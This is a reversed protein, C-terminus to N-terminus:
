NQKAYTTNDYSFQSYDQAIDFMYNNGGIVVYLTNDIVAYKGTYESNRTVSGNSGFVYTNNGDSYTFGELPTIGTSGNTTFMMLGGSTSYIIQNGSISAYNLVLTSGMVSITVLDDNNSYEYTIDLESGMNAKGSGDSNLIFATIPNNSDAIYKGYTGAIPYSIVPDPIPTPTNVSRYQLMIDGFEVSMPGDIYTSGGYTITVYAEVSAGVALSTYNLAPETQTSINDNSTEYLDGGVGDTSGIRLSVTIDSCAQNKLATTVENGTCEKAIEKGAINKFNVNTLYATYHGTNRIYLKYSVTQGPETFNAQLDKLLLPNSSDIEGNGGTFNVANYSGNAYAEGTHNLIPEIKYSAGTQDANSVKSFKVQFNSEDPTVSASSRITLTNSFAAFGISLGVIAIILAAITVSQNRRM